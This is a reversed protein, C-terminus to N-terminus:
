PRRTVVTAGDHLALNYAISRATAGFGLLVLGGEPISIANAKMWSLLGRGDTAHGIAENGVFRVTNVIGTAVVEDEGPRVLLGVRRKYPTTVNLGLGGMRPFIELFAPLDEEALEFPLYVLNEHLRQLAHNQIRPSLSHGIPAGLLGLMRTRGDLTM